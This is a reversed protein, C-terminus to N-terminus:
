SPRVAILARRLQEMTFPKGLLGTFGARLMVELSDTTGSVAVIPIASGGRRLERCAEYGGVRAMDLDLLIVDFPGDPSLTAAAVAGTVQLRPSM